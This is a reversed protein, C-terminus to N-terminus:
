GQMTKNYITTKKFFPGVTAVKQKNKNNELVSKESFIYAELTNSSPDDSYLTLMIVVQAGGLGM